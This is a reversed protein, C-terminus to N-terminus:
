ELGGMVADIAKKVLVGYHDSQRHSVRFKRHIPRDEGTVLDFFEVDYSCLDLDDVSQGQEALLVKAAQMAEDKNTIFVLGLPSGNVKIEVQIM